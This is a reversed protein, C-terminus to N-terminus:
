NDFQSTKAGYCIIISHTAVISSKTGNQNLWFYKKLVQSLSRRNLFRFLTSLLMYKYLIKKDIKSM